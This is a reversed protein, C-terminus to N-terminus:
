KKNLIEEGAKYKTRTSKCYYKLIKLKDSDPLKDFDLKFQAKNDSYYYHEGDFWIGGASIRYYNGTGSWEKEEWTDTETNLLYINGNLM